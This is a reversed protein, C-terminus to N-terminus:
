EGEGEAARPAPRRTPPRAVAPREQDREYRAEAVLDQGREMTELGVQQAREALNMGAKLVTKAAPRLREGFAAGLAIGVALWAGGPVFAEVLEEVM